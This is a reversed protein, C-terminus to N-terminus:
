RSATEFWREFAAALDKLDHRGFVRLQEETDWERAIEKEVVEPNEVLCVVGARAEDGGLQKVRVYVELFHGKARPKRETAICSVGFLQYGYMAAADLEFIDLGELRHRYELNKRSSKIGLQDAADLLCAASYEELWSGIFWKSCSVLTPDKVQPRLIAAVAEPTTLRPGGCLQDLADRVPKLRPYKTPDPLASFREKEMWQRWQKFGAQSLHVQAIAACLDLLGPTDDPDAWGTPREPAREYGHLAVLEDLGLEVAQRLTPSQMIPFIQPSTTGHGDVRLALKRPDLYSFVLRPRYKVLEQELMRYVHVSMVKTGGTYNLGITGELRNQDLIEQIRTEIGLNNSSPIGELRVTLGPERKLLATELEEAARKTGSPGEDPDDSHLLWITTDTKALLRAVVYNPLPNKGVLLFLHDSHYTNPIMDPPM